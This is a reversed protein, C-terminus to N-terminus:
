FGSVLTVAPSTEQPGVKNAGGILYVNNGLTVAGHGHRAKPLSTVQEWIDKDPKYIWADSHAYGTKWNGDSGFSEGGAVFIFGNIATATLGALPVPLPRISEWRDLTKDYVECHSLNIGKSRGGFAYIRNEITASAASSRARSIPAAEEWNSDDILVHHKSSYETKMEDDNLAVGAIVHLSNGCSAYVSEATPVPLPPGIEWKSDHGQTRFVTSKIQWPSTKDGGFGGMGYLYRFNSLLGLHHRSVPLPNGTRWNNETESYVHVIRSPALGFFTPYDSPTFGGTVYIDGKFIAPYIEQIPTELPRASTYTLEKCKQTSQLAGARYCTLSAISGLIFQRRDFKTEM